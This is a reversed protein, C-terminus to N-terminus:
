KSKRFAIHFHYIESNSRKTEIKVSPSSGIDLPVTNSTFRAIRLRAKSIVSTRDRERSDGFLVSMFVMM